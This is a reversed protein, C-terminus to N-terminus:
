AELPLEVFDLPDPVDDAGADEEAEGEIELRMSMGEAEPVVVPDIDVEVVIAFPVVRPSGIGKGKSGFIVGAM